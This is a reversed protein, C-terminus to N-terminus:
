EAQDTPRGPAPGPSRSAESNEDDAPPQGPGPAATGPGSVLPHARYARQLSALDLHTYRQTTGLKAHGLMEQISRLDAGAELLHTAFSHRLGHPSIQNPALGVEGLRRELIRRAEREHLRAGRRGVFLAENPVPGSSAAHLPRIKLWEGLSRVAPDGVPVLRDKGGKGRRVLVRAEDLDLDRVDLGVLEGVRLGSSYGLELIAQNRSELPDAKVLVSTKSNKAPKGTRGAGDADADGDAQRADDDTEIVVPNDDRELRPGDLLTRVEGVTLFRAQHMPTKPRAVGIVPNAAVIENKVLHNYFTKLSSLARLISTNGRTDRLRGMFGRIESRSAAKYDVGIETLYVRWLALDGGYARVTHPSLARVSGLNVLFKDIADQM